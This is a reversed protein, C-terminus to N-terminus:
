ALFEELIARFRKEQEDRHKIDQQEEAIQLEVDKKKEVAATTEKVIRTGATEELNQTVRGETSLIESGEVHQAMIGEAKQIISGEVNQVLKEERVAQLAQNAKEYRHMCVNELYEVMYNKAADLKTKEDSLIHISVLLVAYIAAFAGYRLTQEELGVTQYSSVVGIVGVTVILWIMKLTFSQWSGLRAGFVKYEYLYKKVFADVNQVKDSVMSAHEFKAKILRMLRQNSKQIDSAAKVLKRTTLYSILKALMGVAMMIGMVYFIIEYKMVTELM